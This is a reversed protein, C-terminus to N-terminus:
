PPPAGLGCSLVPLCRQSEDTAADWVAYRAHSLCSAGVIKTVASVIPANRGGSSPLLHGREMGLVNM